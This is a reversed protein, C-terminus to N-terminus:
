TTPFLAWFFGGLFDGSFDELIEVISIGSVNRRLAPFNQVPDTCVPDSHIGWKGLLNSDNARTRPPCSFFSSFRLFPSIGGVRAIGHGQYLQRFVRFLWFAWFHQLSPAFPTKPGGFHSEGFLRKCPAFGRKPCKGGTRFVTQVTRSVRKPSEASSGLDSNAGERSCKQANQSNVRTM